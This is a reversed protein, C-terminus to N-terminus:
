WLKKMEKEFDPISSLIKGDNRMAWPVSKANIISEEGVDLGSFIINGLLRGYKEVRNKRNIKIDVEKGLLKQELWSQSEKGGVESLEPAAINAFRIPFDFDRFGCRVRITDGDHVRIVTATFDEFIQKHPSEWYYLDAQNNTLEPFKDFDHM